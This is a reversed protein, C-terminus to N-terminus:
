DHHKEQELTHDIQPQGDARLSADDLDLERYRVASSQLRTILRDREGGIHEDIAGITEKLSPMIVSAILEDRDLHGITEDITQMFALALQVLGDDIGDPRHSGVRLFERIIAAPADVDNDLYRATLGAVLSLQDPTPRYYDLFAGGIPAYPDVPPLHDM